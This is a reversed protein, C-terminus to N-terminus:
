GLFVFYAIMPIILFLVVGLIVTFFSSLLGEFIEKKRYFIFFNMLFVSLFFVPNALITLNILPFCLITIFAAHGLILAQIALHEAFNYRNHFMRAPVAFFFILLLLAFKLNGRILKGYGMGIKYPSTDDMAEVTRAADGLTKIGTGYYHDILTLLTVGLIAYQIPQFIPKRKGSVYNDIVTKPRRSLNIFNYFLGRDTNTIIRFTESFIGSLSIKKVSSKQGCQNCFKGEFENECNLCKM